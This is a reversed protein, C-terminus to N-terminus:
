RRDIRRSESRLRLSAGRALRAPASTVGLILARAYPRAVYLTAMGAVIIGAFMAPHATIWSLM